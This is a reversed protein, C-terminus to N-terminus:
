YGGNIISSLHRHHTKAPIAQERDRRVTIEKKDFRYMVM